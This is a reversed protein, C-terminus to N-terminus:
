KKTGHEVVSSWEYRWGKDCYIGQRWAWRRLPVPLKDIFSAEDFYIGIKWAEDTPPSIRFTLSSGAPLHVMREQGINSRALFGSQEWHSRVQHALSYCPRDSALEFYRASCNGINTILMVASTVGANTEFHSLTVILSSSRPSRGVFCLLAASVGFLSLFAVIRIGRPKM